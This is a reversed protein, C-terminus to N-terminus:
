TRGSKACGVGEALTRKRASGARENPRDRLTAFPRPRDTASRSGDNLFRAAPALNVLLQRENAAPEGRKGRVFTLYSEPIHASISCSTRSSAERRGAFKYPERRSDQRRQRLCLFGDVPLGSRRRLRGAPRGAKDNFDGCRDGRWRQRSRRLRRFCHYRRWRWRDRSCDHERPRGANDDFNGNRGGTRRQPRINNRERWEWGDRYRSGAQWRNHKCGRKGGYGLSYPVIATGGGGGIATAYASGGGSASATAAGSHASGTAATQQRRRRDEMRRTLAQSLLAM